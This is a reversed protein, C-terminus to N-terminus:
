LAFRAAFGGSGVSRSYVTPMETNQEKTERCDENAGSRLSTENMRRFGLWTFDLGAFYVMFM